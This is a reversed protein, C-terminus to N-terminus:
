RTRHLTKLFSRLKDAREKESAEEAIQFQINKKKEDDELHFYGMWDKLEAADMTSELQKVTM